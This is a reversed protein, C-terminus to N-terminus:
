QKELFQDGILIEDGSQFVLRPGRAAGDLPKLFLLGDRIEYHGSDGKNAASTFGGGTDFSASAGQFSEGSYRGDPAFYTNSSSSMGGALGSGPSFGTYFFHSIMGDLRAGDALPTVPHMVEDGGTLTEGDLTLSEVAGDAFHLTVTSGSVAYSGFDMDGRGLLAGAEPPNTVGEFPAGDYFLGNEWFVLHRHYIEMRMMGDLQMTWGTRTGWYLGTLDGAKPAPMLPAAGESVFRLAGLLAAGDNQFTTLTKEVDEADYAPGEFVVLELRDELRIAVLIQLRSDAKQGMMAMEHGNEQTMEPEILVELGARDEAEVFRFRESFLFTDLRAKSALGETIRFTCYECPGDDVTNRLTLAGDSVSGMAWGPPVAFIVNGHQRDEAFAPSALLCIAAILRKM